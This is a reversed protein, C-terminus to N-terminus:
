LSFICTGNTGTTPEIVTVWHTTGSRIVAGPCTARFLLTGNATDLNVQVSVTWVGQMLDLRDPFTFTRQDACAREQALMASQAGLSSAASPADVADGTRTAAYSFWASSCGAPLGRQPDLEVEIRAAGAKVTPVVSPPPDTDLSSAQGM